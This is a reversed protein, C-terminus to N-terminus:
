GPGFAVVAASGRTYPSTPSVPDLSTLTWTAGQDFSAGFGNSIDGGADDRGVQYGTV